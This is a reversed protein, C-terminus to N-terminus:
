PTREGDLVASAARASTKAYKSTTSLQTHGAIFQVGLINAAHGGQKPSEELLHTIRGRRLDYTQFTRGREVGLVKTAAKKLTTRYDAKVFLAEGKSTEKAILWLWRQARRSLPVIRANRAKDADKTIRLTTPESPNWHKPVRLKYLTAPRLSTEYAFAFRARFPRGFRDRAPLSRLIARWEAPSHETAQRQGQKHATGQARKPISAWEEKALPSGAWTLLMHLVGREKKVTDAKVERLRKATYSQVNEPTCAELTKFFPIIRSALNGAYTNATSPDVLAGSIEEIWRTAIPGLQTEPRPEDRRRGSSRKGDVTERYLRDAEAAARRSDTEGTGLKYRKGNHTFRVKWCKSGRERILKWGEQPRGAMYGSRNAPLAPVRWDSRRAAHSRDSRLVDLALGQM